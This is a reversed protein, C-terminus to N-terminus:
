LGYITNAAQLNGQAEISVHMSTKTHLILSALDRDDSSLVSFILCAKMGETPKSDADTM